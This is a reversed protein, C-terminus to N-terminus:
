THEDGMQALAQTLMERVISEAERMAADATLARLLRRDQRAGYLDFYWRDDDCLIVHLGWGLAPIKTRFRDTQSGVTQWKM